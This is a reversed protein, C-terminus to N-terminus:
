FQNQIYMSKFEHYCNLSIQPYIQPSQFPVQYTGVLWIIKLIFKADRIPIKM